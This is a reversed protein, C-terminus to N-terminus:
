KHSRWEPALNHLADKLAADRVACRQDIAAARSEDPAAAVINRLKRSIEVVPFISEDQRFSLRVYPRMRM